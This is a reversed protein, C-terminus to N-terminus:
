QNSLLHWRGCVETSVDLSDTVASKVAARRDAGRAKIRQWCRREQNSLSPKQSLWKEIDGLSELETRFQRRAQIWAEATQLGEETDSTTEPSSASYDEEQPLQSVSLHCFDMARSPKLFASALRAVPPAFIIYRRSKSPGCMSAKPKFAFAPYM